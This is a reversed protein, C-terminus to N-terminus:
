KCEILKAIIGETKDIKRTIDDIQCLGVIEGDLNTLVKMKEELHEHFVNLCAVAENLLPKDALLNDVEKAAKDISRSPRKQCGEIQRTTKM